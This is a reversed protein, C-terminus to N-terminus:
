IQRDFLLGIAKQLNEHLKQIEEGPIEKIVEDTSRDIIKVVIMDMNDDVRYSFRTNKVAKSLAVELEMLNLQPKSANKKGAIENSQEVPKKPNSIAKAAQDGTTNGTANLSSTSNVVSTAYSM